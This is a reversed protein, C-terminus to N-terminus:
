YFLGDTKGDDGHPKQNDYLAENLLLRAPLKHVLFLVQSLIRFGVVASFARASFLLLINILYAM